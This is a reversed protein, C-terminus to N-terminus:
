KKYKRIYDFTDKGGRIPKDIKMFCIDFDKKREKLKEKLKSLTKEELQIEEKENEFVDVFTIKCPLINNIDRFFRITKNIILAPNGLSFRVYFRSVTGNDVMVEAELIGENSVNEYNLFVSKNCKVFGLKLLKADLEISIITNEFEIKFLAAERGM